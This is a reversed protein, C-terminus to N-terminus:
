TNLVNHFNLQILILVTMIKYKMLIRHITSVQELLLGLGPAVPLQICEKPDYAKIIFNPEIYGRSVAMLTGVMKRIQHLM